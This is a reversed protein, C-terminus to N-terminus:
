LREVTWYVAVLAIMVSAPVVVRERYWTREAVSLGLIAFAGGVITLQAVEVGTNFSLLAVLFEGAPLGLETLVGAFGLGHLLGCAFVVAVRASTLRTRLVNEIAVYAISAAILPEVIHAPVSILGSMSAALTLSHAITFASVQALLPRVRSNLLFLGLVFLVHDTGLPLIHTFGLWLYRGMTSLRHGGRTGPTTSPSDGAPTVAASADALAIAPSSANGELWRVEPEQDGEQVALAYSAFTWGYRWTLAHASSPRVGHWRIHAQPPTFPDGGPVVSIDAAAMPEDVGDFALRAGTWLLDGLGRLRQELQAVSDGSGNAVSDEIAAAPTLATLKEVLAQADTVIEGTYAAADLRLSVRTTGLEHGASTTPLLLLLLLACLRTKM